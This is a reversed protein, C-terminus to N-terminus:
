SSELTAGHAEFMEEWGGLLEEDVVADRYVDFGQYISLELAVNADQRGVSILMGTCLVGPRKHCGQMRGELACPRLVEVAAAATKGM